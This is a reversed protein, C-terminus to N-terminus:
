RTGIKVEDHRHSLATIYGRITNISAYHVDVRHQLFELIDTVPAQVPMIDRESCWDVFAHGRIDYVAHSNETPGDSRTWNIKTRPSPTNSAESRHDSQSDPCSVIVM